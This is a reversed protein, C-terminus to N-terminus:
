RNQGPGVWQVLRRKVRAKYDNDPEGNPGVFWHSLHPQAGIASRWSDVMLEAQQRFLDAHKRL